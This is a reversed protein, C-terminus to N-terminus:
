TLYCINENPSIEWQQKKNNLNCKDISIGNDSVTLCKNTVTSRFINFPYINDTNIKAYDENMIRSADFASYIRDTTFKQSNSVYLKNQCDILCFEGNCLGKSTLCKDNALIGYNNIDNKFVSLYQSNYKSKITKITDTSPFSDPIQALGLNLNVLTNSNNLNLLTGKYIDANKQSQQNIGLNITDSSYEKYKNILKTKLNRITNINSNPEADIYQITFSEVRYEYSLYIIFLIFSIIGLSLILYIYDFLM